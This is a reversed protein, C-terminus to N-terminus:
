HLLKCLYVCVCEGEAQAILMSACLQWSQDGADRAADLSKNGYELAESYQCLEWKARAIEHFLWASEESSKLLPVRQMWSLFSSCNTIMCHSSPPRPESNWPRTMSEWSPTSVASTTSLEPEPMRSRAPYCNLLVLGNTM